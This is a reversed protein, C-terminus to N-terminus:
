YWTVKAFAKYEYCNVLPGSRECYYEASAKIIVKKIWFYKSIKKPISGTKVKTGNYKTNTLIVRGNNVGYHDYTYIFASTNINKSPNAKARLEYQVQQVSLNIVKQKFKDYSPCTVSKSYGYTTSVYAVVTIILLILKKM